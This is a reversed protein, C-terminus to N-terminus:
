QLQLTLIKLFPERSAARHVFMSKRTEVFLVINFKCKNDTSICTAPARWESHISPCVYMLETYPYYSPFHRKEAGMIHFQAVSNKVQTYIVQTRLSSKFGAM